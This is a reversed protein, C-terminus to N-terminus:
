GETGTRRTTRTVTRPEEVMPYDAPVMMRPALGGLVGGLLAAGLGILDAWFLTWLTTGFTGSLMRAPHVAFSFTGAVSPIGVVIIAITALGWVTLGTFFGASPGRVGSSWGALYGALFTAFIASGAVWWRYSSSFTTVHTGFGLASWLATLLALVALGVVTGAFVSRWQVLPQRSPYAGYAM